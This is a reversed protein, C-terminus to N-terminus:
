FKLHFIKEQLNNYFIFELLVYETGGQTNFFPSILGLVIKPVLSDSNGLEVPCHGWCSVKPQSLNIESSESTVSAPVLKNLNCNKLGPLKSPHPVSSLNTM